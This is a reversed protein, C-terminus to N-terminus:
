GLDPQGSSASIGSLSGLHGQLMGCGLCLHPLAKSHHSKPLDQVTEGAWFVWRDKDQMGVLAAHDDKDIEHASYPASAMEYM